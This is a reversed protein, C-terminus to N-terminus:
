YQSRLIGTISELIKEWLPRHKWMKWTIEKSCMLDKSFSEELKAAFEKDIANLNSEDNLRFSRNDFNTSGVSTWVSDVIMYKCHYMTKQFEHIRIGAELLKGWKQRSARRVIPADIEKGPLIILIKVGRKAAEVLAARVHSDPVFYANAILISHNSHAIAFLYMLRVSSSGEEPSSKFVQALAKGNPKIEPFYESGHLVEEDTTNWNDLFAAQLQSVVPGTVRYHSDRWHDKDQANGQWQDAIGVGGTFGVIGDVILLKRHTRNNVRMLNYWRLPRYRKVKVGAQKMQEITEEKFRRSGLWDLLVHVKVGAKAQAILAQSFAEGVEGSWYIFTEFNITSKASRIAELMSPFIQDGNELPKIANGELIPPGLLHSISRITEPSDLSGFKEIRHDIRRGSARLNFLVVFM